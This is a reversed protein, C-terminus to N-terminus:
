DKLFKAENELKGMLLYFIFSEDLIRFGGFCFEFQV